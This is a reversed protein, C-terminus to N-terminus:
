AKSFHPAFQSHLNATPPDLHMGRQKMGDLVSFCARLEANTMSEDGKEQAVQSLKFHSVALERQWGSNAPDITALASIIQNLRSYFLHARERNGQKLAVDGRKENSIGLDFKYSLNNPHAAALDEAITLDNAFHDDAVRLDNLLVALDGLRLHAVSLGRQWRPNTPERFVLNTAIEKAGTLHRYAEAFDELAMSLKGLKCLSTYLADLYQIDDPNSEVLCKAIENAQTFCRKAETPDERALALDGIKDVVAGLDFWSQPNDYDLKVIREAITRSETFFRLSDSPHGQDASIDGLKILSMCLDRQALTDSPRSSAYNQFANNQKLALCWVTELDAVSRLADILIGLAQGIKSTSNSKTVRLPLDALLVRREWPALAQRHDQEANQCRQHIFEEVAALRGADEGAEQAGKRLFDGALRHLRAIEPTGAETPTLLRLGGTLRGLISEWPGPIEPDTPELLEPHHQGALFRLWPLPVAEAPFHAAYHLVTAAAPHDRALRDFTFRLTSELAHTYGPLLDRAQETQQAEVLQKGMEGAGAGIARRLRVFYTTATEGEEAYLRVFRAAVEVALTHRDLLGIVEKAAALETDALTGDKGVVIRKWLELADAEPLADVTVIQKPDLFTLDRGELRTTVLLHLWGTGGPGAALMAKRIAERQTTALLRPDDVNDVVVLAAAGHGADRPFAPDFARRHLDALVRRVTDAVTEAVTETAVPPLGLPERLTALLPLLESQGEAGVEWCGGSYRSRLNQGYRLALATKGQGGLGRLATIVGLAGGQFLQEEIQALEIGRGVFTETAGSINGKWQASEARRARAIQDSVRVAIRQLCKGTVADEHLARLRAIAELGHTQFELLQIQRQNLLDRAWPPAKAVISKASTGPATAIFVPTIGGEVNALGRASEQELYAEWEIRCWHSEWYHDSLCALLVRSRAVAARLRTEWLQAPTISDPAYFTQWDPQDSAPTSLNDTTFPVSLALIRQIFVQVWGEHEGPPIVDDRNAYSVFLDYLGPDPLASMAPVAPPTVFVWLPLLGACAVVSGM